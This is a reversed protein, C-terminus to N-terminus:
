AAASNRRDVAVTPGTETADPEFAPVWVTSAYLAPVPVNLRLREDDTEQIPALTPEGARQLVVVAAELQMGKFKAKFVAPSEEPV